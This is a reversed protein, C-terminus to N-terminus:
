PSATLFMRAWAGPPIWPYPNTPANHLAPATIWAGQRQAIPIVDGDNVLEAEAQDFLALRRAPDLTADAQTALAEAHPYLHNTAGWVPITLPGLWDQPDPYDETWTFSSVAIVPFNLTTLLGTPIIEDVKLGPLATQWQAIIASEVADRQQQGIYFTLPACHSTVGGCQDAVYARWLATAQAQSGSLPASAVAGSLSTNYGPTNLPIFHNTPVGGILTALATKNLALALAQRVRVDNAPARTPDIQLSRVSQILGVHYGQRKQLGWAQWYYGGQALHPLNDSGILPGEILDGNLKPPTIPLGEDPAYTITVQRLRPAQGWYRASRTLTLATQDFAGTGQLYKNTSLHLSAVRYMGSTGQGGGDTLHDTWNAGYRQIVSPEVISSFPEALKALLADDPRSLVILLTHPDPTLLADGVLTPIFRQGVQRAPNGEANCYQQIFVPEDVLSLFFYGANKGCLLARNLSYAVAASTIPAGDAFRAGPRLTITYRLGDASVQARTALEPTPRLHVDFAFLRSYLLTLVQAGAVTAYPAQTPDLIGVSQSPSTGIVDVTLNQRADPLPEPGRHTWPLPPLAPAACSTLTLAAVLAVLARALWNLSRRRDRNSAPSRYSRTM